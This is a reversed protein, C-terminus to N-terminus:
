PVLNLDILARIATAAVQVLESKMAAPLPLKRKVEDWFEDMEELIVAYAEHPGGYSGHKAMANKLEVLVALIAAEIKEDLPSPEM